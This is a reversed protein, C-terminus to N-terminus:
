SPIPGADGVEPQEAQGKNVTLAHVLTNQRDLVQEPARVIEATGIRNARVPGNLDLEAVARRLGPGDASRLAEDLRDLIAQVNEWRQPALQWEVVDGLVDLADAITEDDLTTRTHRPDM